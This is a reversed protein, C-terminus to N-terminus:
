SPGLSELGVRIAVGAWSTLLERDALVDPPVEYYSRITQRQNPRFPGMGRALYDGKSHNDVKLYFRGQFLIGFITEGWYIGHGGFLHRAAVEGMPSLRDLIEDLDISAAM